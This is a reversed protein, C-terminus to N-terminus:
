TEYCPQVFGIETENAPIVVGTALLKHRCEGLFMCPVFLRQFELNPVEKVPVALAMEVAFFGLSGVKYPGVKQMDFIMLMAGLQNDISRFLVVGYIQKRLDRDFNEYLSKTPGNKRLLKMDVRVFKLRSSNM